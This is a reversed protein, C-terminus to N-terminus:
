AHEVAAILRATVEDIEGMGDVQRLLGRGVSFATVPATSSAYVQLRTRIVEETDDARGEIEARRLIRETVEDFNATIEIAVDLPHGLAALVTDLEVAQESNRPYGDLLFGAAADDQAL